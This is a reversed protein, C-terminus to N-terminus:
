MERCGGTEEKGREGVREREKYRVRERERHEECNRVSKKLREIGV